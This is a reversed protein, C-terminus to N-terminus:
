FTGFLIIIRFLIMGDLLINNYSTFFIYTKM